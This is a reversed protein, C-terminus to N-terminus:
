GTSGTLEPEAVARDLAALLELTASSPTVGLGALASLCADLARRAGRTDHLALLARALLQYAPEHASDATLAHEAARSAEHAARKAFLLEGARLAAVVYRNTWQRQEDRAWEVDGIDDYPDGRWLPLAAQYAALAAAPDGSREAADAADLHAALDWVDCRLRDSSVLTLTDGRTRLFYSPETRPRNPELIGQLYNLTVRLNHRPDALEPWLADAAVERRVRRRAVLLSLLERVRRRALDRHEVILDDRRLELPGLVSITLRHTPAAPVRAALQTVAPM